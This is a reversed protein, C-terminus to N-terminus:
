TVCAVKQGGIEEPVVNKHMIFSLAKALGKSSAGKKTKLHKGSDLNLFLLGRSSYPKSNAKCINTPM